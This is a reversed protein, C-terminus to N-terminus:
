DEQQFIVGIGLMTVKIFIIFVPSHMPPPITLFCSILVRKLPRGVKDFQERNVIIMIIQENQVLINM